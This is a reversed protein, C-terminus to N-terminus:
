LLVGSFAALLELGSPKPTTEALERLLKWVRLLRSDVPYSLLAESLELLLLDEKSQAKAFLAPLLWLRPGHFISELIEHSLQTLSEETQLDEDTRTPCWVPLCRSRITGRVSEIDNAWLCLLVPSPPEELSKLLVDSSKPPSLDMPGIVLVGLRDGVPPSRLLTICERAEDVKLGSDGVPPVLLSGKASGERIATSRAGPGHYLYTQTM